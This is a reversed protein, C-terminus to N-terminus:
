KLLLSSDGYSLFRYENELAYQYVKKWNEGILASVLLLLTSKPQHFNTIIGKCIKFQYGPYIYIQTAGELVYIKNREMAMMLNELALNVGVESPLTYADWQNVFTQLSDPHMMNKVGLWHLSEILRMSTTGVPIVFDNKLLNEIAEIGISFRESHMEHEIANETKVPKFTGAGVHLTIQSSSVKKENLTKLVEDTFHLGATPAAVSGLHQAYVTQYRKKDSDDAKRHMYPPLPLEAIAELVVYFNPETKWEFRVLCTDSLREILEITLGFEINMHVLKGSKWRKLNGVMVKWNASYSSSSIPLTNSISELCFVEISSGSDKTFHLRAPFVKTNNFVLHSNDPIFKALNKFLSSQIEGNKYVLLKSEDRNALPKNPIKSEPLDYDFDNINIYNHKDM